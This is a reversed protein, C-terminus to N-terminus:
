ARSQNSRAGCEAVRPDTVFPLARSPVSDMRRTGRPERGPAHRTVAAPGGVIALSRHARSM